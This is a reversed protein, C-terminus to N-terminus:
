ISAEASRIPTGCEPCIGSENGTLDYGCQICNGSDNSVGPPVLIAICLRVLLPLCLVASVVFAGTLDDWRYSWMSSSKPSTIVKFPSLLILSIVLGIEYIALSIACCAYCWFLRRSQRGAAERFFAVLAVVGLIVGCPLWLHSGHLLHPVVKYWPMSAWLKQNSNGHLTAPLWLFMAILLGLSVYVLTFWAAVRMATRRKM